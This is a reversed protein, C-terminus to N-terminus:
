SLITTTKTGDGSYLGSQYFRFGWMILLCHESCRNINSWILFVAFEIEMTSSDRYRLELSKFKVHVKM